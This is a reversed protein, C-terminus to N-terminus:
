DTTTACCSAVYMDLELIKADEDFEEGHAMEASVKAGKAGLCRAGLRKVLRTCQGQVSFTSRQKQLKKREAQRAKRTAAKELSPRYEKPFILELLEAFDMGQAVLKRVIEGNIKSIRDGKHIGAMDAQFGTIVALVELNGAATLNINMGLSKQNDLLLSAQVPVVENNRSTHVVLPRAANLYASECVALDLDECKASGMRVISDGM